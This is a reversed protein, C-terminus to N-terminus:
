GRRSYVIMVICLVTIITIVFVHSGYKELTTPPETSTDKMHPEPVDIVTKLGTYGSMDQQHSAAFTWGLPNGEDNSAVMVYDDTNNTKNLAVDAGYWIKEANRVVNWAHQSYGESDHLKGAVTLVKISDGYIEKITYNFAAAFGFSDAEKLVIAGFATGVSPKDEDAVYETRERLKKDVARAVDEVLPDQKLESKVEKAFKEMEEFSEENEFGEVPTFTLTNENLTPTTWLWYYRGPDELVMLKAVSAVTDEDIDGTVTVPSWEIGTLVGGNNYPDALIGFVTAEKGSLQDLYSVPGDDDGYAEETFALPVVFLSLVFVAVFM